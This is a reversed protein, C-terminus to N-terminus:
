PTPPPGPPVADWDVDAADPAEPPKPKPRHFGLDKEHAIAEHPAQRTAPLTRGTAPSGPAAQIPENWSQPGMTVTVFGRSGRIISGPQPNFRVRADAPFVDVVLRGNDNTAVVIPRESM